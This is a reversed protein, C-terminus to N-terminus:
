NFLSRRPRAPLLHYDFPKTPFNQHYITDSECFATRHSGSAAKTSIDPSLHLPEFKGAIFLVDLDHLPRGATFRAYSGILLCDEGLAGKVADYIKGVMERGSPTPSLNDKVYRRYKANLENKRM